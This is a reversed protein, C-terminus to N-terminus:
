VLDKGHSEAELPVWALVCADESSLFEVIVSFHSFFAFDM